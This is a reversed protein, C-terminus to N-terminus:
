TVHIIVPVTGLPMFEDFKILLSRDKIPNKERAFAGMESGNQAGAVITGPPSLIAADATALLQAYGPAGFERSTFLGSRPAIRVSEYRRPITSGDSWATFRVCGHQTDDVTVPEDLICESADFRHAHIQGLITSRSLEITGVPAELALEASPLPLAQVISDTVSLQEVLGGARTRVPGSICRDLTLNRVTGEIWLHTPALPRGDV